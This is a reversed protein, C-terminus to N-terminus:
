CTVAVDESMEEMVCTEWLRSRGRGGGGGSAMMGVVVACRPGYVRMGVGDWSPVVVGVRLKGARQMESQLSSRLVPHSRLVPFIPRLTRTPPPPILLLPVSLSYATQDANSSLFAFSPLQLPTSSPIFPSAPSDESLGRVLRSSHSPLALPHSPPALISILTSLLSLTSSSSSSSARPTRGDLSPLYFFAQNSSPENETSSQLSSSLPHIESDSLPVKRTQCPRVRNSSTTRDPASSPRSSVVLGRLRKTLASAVVGGGEGSRAEKGEGGGGDPRPPGSISPSPALQRAFVVAVDPHWPEDDEQTRISFDSAATSNSTSLSPVDEEGDNAPFLCPPPQQPSLLTNLFPASAPSLFTPEDDEAPPFLPQQSQRGHRGYCCDSYPSLTTPHM